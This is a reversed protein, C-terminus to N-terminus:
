KKSFAVTPPRAQYLSETAGTSVKSTVTQPLRTINKVEGSKLAAEARESARYGGFLSLSYM